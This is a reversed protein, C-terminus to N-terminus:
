IEPSRYGYFYWGNGYPHLYYGSPLGDRVNTDNRSYIHKMGSSTNIGMYYIFFGPYVRRM